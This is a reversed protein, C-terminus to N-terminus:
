QPYLFRSFAGRKFRYVRSGNDDAVWIHQGDPDEVIASPMEMSFFSSGDANSLRRVRTTFDSQGLVKSAAMGIALQATDFGLVRGNTRDPVWLLGDLLAMSGVIPFQNFKSASLGVTNTVYDAQGLVYAAVAGPATPVPDFVMVRRGVNEHVYLRSGLVQGLSPSRFKRDSTAGTFTEFDPQGVVLTALPRNQTIPLDFALVRHNQTDSVWLRTGGDSLSLGTPFSLKGRGDAGSNATTASLTDQGLVYTATAGNTEPVEDFVLVRNRDPDSVYLRGAPDVVVGFSRSISSGSAAGAACPASNGNCSENFDTRGVVALADTRPNSKDYVLVRANWYDNVLLRTPTVAISFPQGFGYADPAKRNPHATAFSPQGHVATAADSGSTPLTAFELVRHNWQDSIWLRTGDSELGMPQNFSSASPTAGGRNVTVTTTNPQGIAATAAAGDTAPLTAWYLVRHNLTDSVYLSTGVVLAHGPSNFKSATTGSSTTSMTAQGLVRDAPVDAAGPVANWILVRHNSLDSVAFGAGYSSLYRPSSLTIASATGGRNAAGETTTAQGIVQNASAGAAPLSAVDDYVLVRNNGTDAVLLKTGVFAVGRPSSLTAATPSALGQNAAYSTMDPQGIVKDAPQFTQNPLSNWILVRNNGYDAIALRTGDSAAQGTGGLTSATPGPGTAGRGFNALGVTFSEQGLMAIPSDSLASEFVHFRFNAQDGVYVRSGARLVNVIQTYGDRVAGGGNPLWSRFDPQGIVIVSPDTAAVTAAAGGGGGHGGNLLEVKFCATGGVAAAILTAAPIRWMM